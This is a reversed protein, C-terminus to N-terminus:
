GAKAPASNRMCRAIFQERGKGALRQRKAQLRCSHMRQEQSAYHDPNPEAPPPAADATAEAFGAAPTCLAILLAFTRLCSM